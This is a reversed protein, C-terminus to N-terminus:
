EIPVTRENNKDVTYFTDKQRIFFDVFNKRHQVVDEREHGEFYPRMSNKEFSYGWRKLDLRLMM